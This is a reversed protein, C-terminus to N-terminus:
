GEKISKMIIDFSDNNQTKKMKVWNFFGITNITFYVVYNLITPLYGMNGALVLPVWTCFSIVNKALAFIFNFESRRMLFYGSLTSVGIICTNLILNNTNFVELLFYLGFTILGVISVSLLWEKWNISRTIKVVNQHRNKGWTYIAAIDMPVTFVLSVTMQGYFKNTFCIYIYFISQLLSCFNGYVSGKAWFFCASIGFISSSIVVISSGAYIGLTIFVVYLLGLCAYHFKNSKLFSM